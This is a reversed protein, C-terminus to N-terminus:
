RRQIITAKWRTTPPAADIPSRLWPQGVAAREAEFGNPLDTCENISPDGEVLHGVGVVCYDDSGGHDPKGCTFSKLNPPAFTM